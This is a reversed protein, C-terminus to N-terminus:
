RSRHRTFTDPNSPAPCDNGTLACNASNFMRTVSLRDSLSAGQGFAGTAGFAVAVVTLAAISLLIQRPNMTGPMRQAPRGGRM